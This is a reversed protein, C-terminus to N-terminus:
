SLKRDVGEKILTRAKQAGEFGTVKVWKGKELDKYHEFFHSIRQKLVSNLDELDQVTSFSPDLKSVPVAIIKEDIGSEDEMMLVAVPRARIVSGPIVPYNSIVLVDVPDGDGSLTHPVFGYNCPYFMSTQIFRDVFIAGSDKDFEYKVPPANMPIEIIVNIEGQSNQAAIKDILM